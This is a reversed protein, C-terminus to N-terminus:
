EEFKVPEDTVLLRTERNTPDSISQALLDLPILYSPIKFYLVRNLKLNLLGGGWRASM